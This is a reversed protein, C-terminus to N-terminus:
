IGAIECKSTNSKLGSVKSFTDFSTISRYGIKPKEPFHAHVTYLYENIM